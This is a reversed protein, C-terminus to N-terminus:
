KGRRHQQKEELSLADFSPIVGLVPVGLSKALQEHNRLREDANDVVIVAISAILLAVLGFIVAFLVTKQRAYGPNLEHAYNITTPACEATYSTIAWKNSDSIKVSAPVIISGPRVVNGEEDTTGSVEERVLREATKLLTAATKQNKKVSVTMSFANPNVSYDYQYTIASELFAMLSLFDEKAQPDLSEDDLLIDGDLTGDTTVNKVAEPKLDKLMELRFKDSNLHDLLMTLHEEKYVYNPATDPKPDGVQVGNEYFTTSARISIEYRVVSGYYEDDKYNLFGFLGGCVAGVLLVVVLLRVHKWLVRFIDSLGIESKKQEEFEEM